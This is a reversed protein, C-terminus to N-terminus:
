DISVCSAASLIAWATTIWYSLTPGRSIVVSSATLASEKKLLGGKVKFTPSAFHISANMIMSLLIAQYNNNKCSRNGIGVMNNFTLYRTSILVVEVHFSLSTETDRNFIFIYEMTRGLPSCVDLCSNCSGQSDWNVPPQTYLQTVTTICYYM